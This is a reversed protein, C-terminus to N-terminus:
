LATAGAARAQSSSAVSTSLDVRRRTSDPCPPCAPQYCSSRYQWEDISQSGEFTKAPTKKQGSPHHYAHFASCETTRVGGESSGGVTRYVNEKNVCHYRDNTPDSDSGLDRSLHTLARNMAKLRPNLFVFYDIPISLSKGQM